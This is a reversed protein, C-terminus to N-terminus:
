IIFNITEIMKLVPGEFYETGIDTRQKFKESFKKIIQNETMNCNPVDFSFYCISGKPYESLRKSVTRTTLGIKYVDEHLLIHERLKFIYIYGINQRKIIKKNGNTRKDNVIYENINPNCKNKKNLHKRMDNRHNTTHNCGSCIYIKM